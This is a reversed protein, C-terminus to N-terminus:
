KSAESNQRQDNKYPAHGGGTTRDMICDSGSIKRRDLRQELFIRLQNGALLSNAHGWQEDRQLFSVRIDHFQQDSVFSIDIFTTVTPRGQAYINHLQQQSVLSGDVLGLPSSFASFLARIAQMNKRLFSAAIFRISRDM